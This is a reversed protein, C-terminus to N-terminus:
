YCWDAHLAGDQMGGGAESQAGGGCLEPHDRAYTSFARRVTRRYAKAYGAAHLAQDYDIKPAHSDAATARGLAALMAPLVLGANAIYAQLVATRAVELDLAYPMGDMVEGAAFMYLGRLLLSCVVDYRM